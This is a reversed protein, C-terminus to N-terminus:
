RDGKVPRRVGDNSCVNALRSMRVVGAPADCAPGPADDHNM